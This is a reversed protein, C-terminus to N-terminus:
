GPEERTSREYEERAITYRHCAYVEGEVALRNRLLGEYRGGFRDVYREIARRSRDNGDVYKVAVVDLDFREFALEVFLAARESSYANGWFRKDLVIGLTALRRDWDPYIGTVGAIEGGHGEGSSPRIVYKAGEGQAWQTEARRVFEFTEKPTRHPDSDVYEFVAEADPSRGFVEYLALVDVTEPSLREFDLRDTELSHPFTHRSRSSGRLLKRHPRGRRM